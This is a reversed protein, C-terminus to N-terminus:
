IFYIMCHIQIIYIYIGICQIIYTHCVASTSGHLRSVKYIFKWIYQCIFFRGITYGGSAKM